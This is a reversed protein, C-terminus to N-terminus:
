YKEWPNTNTKTKFHMRDRPGQGVVWGRTGGTSHDKGMGIRTWSIDAKWTTFSVTSYM